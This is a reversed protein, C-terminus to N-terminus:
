CAPHSRGLASRALEGPRVSAHLVFAGARRTELITMGNAAPRLCAGASRLYPTHRIRLLYRGPRATWGAIREHGVSTLGAPAPGTLIPTPRRLAYITWDSSEFVPRLGSRGSRLLAAERRAGLEDLRVRPLLVLRVGLRRLWARYATPTLVEGYLAPNQAVDLQRYWGRALSFGARPLRYAEWHDFTQVVEVRYDPTSHVRLYDLAPAWFSAASARGDGARAVATVYPVVNYAFGLALAALALPRPRFRVLLVTLIALPFVLFRLRTLNSGIPTPVAFALLSVAGWLLFFVVLTRGHPARSALATGIASTTLVGLLNLVSFPYISEAPFLALAALELAGLAALGGAIVLTRRGLHRRGLAVALLILCLFCFALPSFGLTLAACAGALGLRGAQLARLAGLLCALGLGYSYTGTLLPGGALLGFALAPLRGVAGWERVVVSAFLAASAVAAAAVLPINGVLAAPLYYLFSYSALPYQGAYWLNDWLHVGQEVLFTRYLHAPADIAPP